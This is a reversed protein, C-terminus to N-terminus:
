SLASSFFSVNIQPFKENNPYSFFSIRVAAQKRHTSFFLTLFFASSSFGFTPPPHSLTLASFENYAVRLIYHSDGAPQCNTSM